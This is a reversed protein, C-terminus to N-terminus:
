FNKLNMWDKEARLEQTTIEEESSITPLFGAQTGDNDGEFEGDLSLGEILRSGM